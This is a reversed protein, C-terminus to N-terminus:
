EFVVPESRLEMKLIVMPYSPTKEVKEGAQPGNLTTRVCIKNEALYCENVSICYGGTEQIGYGRVIYLYENDSYTLKFDEEKKEELQEKLSAPVDQIRIVTFELDKQKEAGQRVVCGTLLLSVGFAVAMM